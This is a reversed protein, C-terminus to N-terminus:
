IVFQAAMEGVLLSYRVELELCLIIGKTEIVIFVLSLRCRRIILAKLMITMLFISLIVRGSRSHGGILYGRLTVIYLDPTIKTFFSWYCKQM